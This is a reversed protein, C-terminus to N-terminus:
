DGLGLVASVTVSDSVMVRVCVRGRVTLRLGRCKKNSFDRQTFNGPRFFAVETGPSSARAVQLCHLSVCSSHSNDDM